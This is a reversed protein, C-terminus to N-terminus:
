GNDQDEELITSEAEDVDITTVEEKKPDPAFNSQPDTEQKYEVFNRSMIRDLLEKREVAQKDLLDHTNHRQSQFLETQSNSFSAREKFLM